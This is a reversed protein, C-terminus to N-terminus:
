TNATEKEAAQMLSMVALGVKMATEKIDDSDKHGNGNNKPASQGTLPSQPSHGDGKELKYVGQLGWGWYKFLYTLTTDFFDEWSVDAPWGLEKIATYRANIMIPTLACTQPVPRLLLISADSNTVKSGAGLGANPNIGLPPKQAPQKSEPSGEAGKTVSPEKDSVPTTKKEKLHPIYPTEPSQGKAIANAVKTVTSKTVGVKAAVEVPQM